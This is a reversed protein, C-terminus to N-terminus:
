GAPETGWATTPPTARTSSPDSVETVSTIVCPLQVNGPYPACTENTACSFGSSCLSATIEGQWYSAAGSGGHYPGYSYSPDSTVGPDFCGTVNGSGFSGSGQYGLVSGSGAAETYQAPETFGGDNNVPNQGVDLQVRWSYGTHDWSTNCYYSYKVGEVYSALTAGVGYSYQGLNTFGATALDSNPTLSYTVACAAANGSGDLSGPSLPAPLTTTTTTSTSTSTSTTSTGSGDAGDGSSPPVYGACSGSTATTAVDVATSAILCSEGPDGVSINWTTSTVETITGKPSSVIYSPDNTPSTVANTFSFSTLDSHAAKYVYTNGDASTSAAGKQDFAALATADHSLTNATETATGNKSNQIVALFTPIAIAALVGLIVIVVILELLTMGKASRARSSAHRTTLYRM